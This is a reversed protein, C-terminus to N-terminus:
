ARGPFMLEGHAEDEVECQGVDGAAAPLRDDRHQANRDADPEGDGHCSQHLAALVIEDALEDVRHRM